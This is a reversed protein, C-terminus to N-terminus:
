GGFSTDMIFAIGATVEPNNPCDFAHRGATDLECCSCRVFRNYKDYESYCNEKTVILVETM